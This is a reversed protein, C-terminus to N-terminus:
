ILVDVIKKSISCQKLEARVQSDTLSPSDLETEAQTIQEFSVPRVRKLCWIQHQYIMKLNLARKMMQNQSPAM